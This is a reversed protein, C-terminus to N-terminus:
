LKRVAEEVERAQALFNDGTLRLPSGFAIRVPGPHAMRWTQHLVRHLGDIRIPVVPLDLKSAIMGVGPQFPAIEGERTMKGEPFILVCWRENALDGMYRLTALAGPERQPIPFANFFLTSLYYNLSNTFSHGHFHDNFFEKRMAPAVRYRWKPPLAALIAPVDMYGQHNSAFIVPPELGELNALGDTRIHAFIRTLPLLFCPLFIRRAARAFPGRNWNPFDTATSRAAAQPAGTVESEELGLAVM